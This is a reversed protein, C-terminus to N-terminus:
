AGLKKENLVLRLREKQAPLIELFELGFVKPSVWRVVARDIKLPWDYDPSYIWAEVDTDKAIGSECDVRCGTKSLDLVTGEGEVGGGSFFIRLKAKLRTTKREQMDRAIYVREVGLVRQEKTGYRSFIRFGKSLLFIWRLISDHGFDNLWANLREQNAVLDNFVADGLFLTEDSKEGVQLGDAEGELM